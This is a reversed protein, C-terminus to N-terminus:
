FIANQFRRRRHPVPRSLFVLKVIHYYFFFFVFLKPELISKRIKAIRETIYNFMYFKPEILVASIIYRLHYEQTAGQRSRQEVHCMAMEPAIRVLRPLIDGEACAFASVFVNVWRSVISELAIGRFYLKGFATNKQVFTYLSLMIKRFLSARKEEEKERARARLVVQHFVCASFSVAVYRFVTLVVLYHM